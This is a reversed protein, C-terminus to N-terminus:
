KTAPGNQMTPHKRASIKRHSDTHQEKPLVNIYDRNGIIFMIIAWMTIM